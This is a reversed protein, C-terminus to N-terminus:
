ALNPRQTPPGEEPIDDSTATIKKKKLNLNIIQMNLRVQLFCRGINKATEGSNLTIFLVIKEKTFYNM